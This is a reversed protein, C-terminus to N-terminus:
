EAVEAHLIANYLHATDSGSGNGDNSELEVRLQHTGKGVKVCYQGAFSAYQTTGYFYEPAAAGPKVDIGDLLVRVRGYDGADAYTNPATVTVFLTDKKKSPGTFNWVTGPVTSVSGTSFWGAYGGSFAKKQAGGTCPSTAALKSVRTTPPAAGDPAKSGSAQSLSPTAAALTGALLVPVAAAISRKKM